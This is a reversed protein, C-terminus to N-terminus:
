IGFKLVQNLLLLSGNYNLTSNSPTLLLDLKLPESPDMLSTLLMGFISPNIEEELPLINPILPSLFPTSLDTMPNSPLDLKSTLTGFKLDEMGVSLPLIPNSLLKPNLKSSLPIDLVLFGNLTTQLKVPSNVNELPIGYNSPNILEPPSSKDTILPSVVPSSKEPTDM